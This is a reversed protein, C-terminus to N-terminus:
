KCKKKLRSKALGDGDCLYDSDSRCRENDDVRECINELKAPFLKRYIFRRCPQTLVPFTTKSSVSIWDGGQM